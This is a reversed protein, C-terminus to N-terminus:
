FLEIDMGDWEANPDRLTANMKRTRILSKLCRNRCLRTMLYQGSRYLRDVALATEFCDDEIAQRLNVAISLLVRLFHTEASRISHVGQIRLRHNLSKHLHPFGDRLCVGSIADHISNM